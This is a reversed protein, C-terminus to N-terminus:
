TGIATTGGHYGLSNIASIIDEVDDYRKLDFHTQTWGISAFTICGVRTYRLGVKLKRLLQEALKKYDEYIPHTTSSFDLVLM